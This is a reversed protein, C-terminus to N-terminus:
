SPYPTSVTRLHTLRASMSSPTFGPREDSSAAFILTAAGAQLSQIASQQQLLGRLAEQYVFAARPDDGASSSDVGTETVM